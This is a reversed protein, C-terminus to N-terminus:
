SPGMATEFAPQGPMRPRVPCENDMQLRSVHLPSRLGSASSRSSATVSAWAELGVTGQYGIDRLAQAIRPYNIEGTGPECHGPVDAVQVEGIDARM